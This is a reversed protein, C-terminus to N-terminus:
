SPNQLWNAEYDRLSVLILMSWGPKPEKAEKSESHEHSDRTEPLSPSPQEAPEPEPASAAPTPAPPQLTIPPALTASGGTSPPATSAPTGANSSRRTSTRTPLKAKGLTAKNVFSQIETETNVEIVQALADASKDQTQQACDSEHTQYQTLLDRLQNIRSEDMAQLGEFIFPAQSEWQQTASELKASAADVKQTNAKSGKKELKDTEHQAAELAKAMSALNSSMTQM